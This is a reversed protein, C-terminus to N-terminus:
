ILFDLCLVCEKEQLTNIVCSYTECFHGTAASIYRESIYVETKKHMVVNYYPKVIHYDNEKAPTFLYASKFDTNSNFITKTIQKGKEDIVYVCELETHESCFDQIEMEFQKKNVKMLQEGLIKLILKRNAGRRMKKNMEEKTIEQFTHSLNNCTSYFCINHFEEGSIAKSFYFGQFLNIGLSICSFIEEQEEVGEAIVVAGIRSALNAIARVIECKYYDKYINTIASRDIKVIDPKTLAIRNLNSYGEGVDDLAILFGYNRFCTVFALLIDNEGAHKENIEIVVKERNIGLEKLMTVIYEANDIYDKLLAAEFNIFLLCDSNMKSFQKFAEEQCLFDLERENHEKRAYNFLNETAIPEGMYSARLLAECGIIKEKDVGVIPQFYISLEQSRLTYAYIERSIHNIM